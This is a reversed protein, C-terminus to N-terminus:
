RAACQGGAEVRSSHRPRPLRAAPAANLVHAGRLSARHRQACPPRRANGLAIPEIPPSRWRRRGTSPKLRQHELARVAASRLPATRSAVEGADAGANGSVRCAHPTADVQRCAAGHTSPRARSTTPWAAHRSPRRGRRGAAIIADCGHARALAGRRQRHGLQRRHGARRRRTADAGAGAPRRPRERGRSSARRDDCTGRRLTRSRGRRQAASRASSASTRHLAGEGPRTASRIPDAAADHLRLQRQMRSPTRRPHDAIELAAHRCRADVCPAARARRRRRQRREPEHGRRNAGAMPAPSRCSM